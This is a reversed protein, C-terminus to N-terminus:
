WKVGKSTRRGEGSGQPTALAVCGRLLAVVWLRVAAPPFRPVLRALLGEGRVDGPSSHPTAEERCADGTKSIGGTIGKCCKTKVTVCCILYM